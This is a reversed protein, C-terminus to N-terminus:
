LYFEGITVMILVCVAGLSFCLRFVVGPGCFGTLWLYLVVVYWLGTILM